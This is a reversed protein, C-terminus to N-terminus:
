RCVLRNLAVGGTLRRIGTTGIFAGVAVSQASRNSEGLYPSLSGNGHCALLHEALARISDGTDGAEMRNPYCDVPHIGGAFGSQGIFQDLRDLAQAAVDNTGRDVAEM